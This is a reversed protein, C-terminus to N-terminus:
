ITFGLIIKLKYFLYRCYYFPIVRMLFCVRITWYDHSEWIAKAYSLIVFYPPINWSRIEQYIDGTSYDGVPMRQEFFGFLRGEALVRESDTHHSILGRGYFSNKQHVRYLVLAESYCYKRAGAWSAGCVLCKDACVKWDAVHPIPMFRLLIERKVSNGSTPQGIFFRKIKTLYRSYGLDVGVFPNRYIGNEKGFKQLNCCLFDCDPYGIYFKEAKELYDSRYCDDSDLFFIIDGTSEAFGANFSSLQGENKIKLVLKILSNHGYKAKLLEKSGDTSGDDVVIIEDPLRTQGLVSEIADILYRKYNYNDIIVSLKM